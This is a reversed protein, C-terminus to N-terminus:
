KIGEAPGSRRKGWLERLEPCRLAWAVALFTAAGAPICAALMAADGAAGLHARLLLVVATMSATAVATRGLSVLIRGGGLGGWRRSLVWILILANASSTVATALGVAGAKLPTFIGGLVLLLNVGALVCAVVLPTRTSKQAFFARLLVHNWFYAWMGLCYMRLIFASRATDFATFARRQFIMATIPRALVILAAAAPIGLFAGLRLARTTVERLGRVDRRAAYRSFLPFVVTAISIALVGMPLQYLRNAAYLCRVAGDRLPLNPHADSATFVLALVRDALASLQVVSLPLVMPGLLSAVRKVEPLVPRLRPLSALGARRLLWIVGALQVVGAGLLCLAVVFFQQADNRGLAPALWAGAAILAVNLIIPAFAPYAFHGKCNLAASGLALLCVTVMFPLMLATMQLLVLRPWDGGWVGWAAWLGLEILVTLGVLVLALLGAANALVVRARAWGASEAVETFVPVFAASLAGEGFLRRFLNPVSFATWFRDALVASGLPVLLMDRVLGLIRSLMTLGAVVKAAGFFHERENRDQEDM